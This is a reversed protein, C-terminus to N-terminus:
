PNTGLVKIEELEPFDNSIEVDELHSIRDFCVEHINNYRGTAATMGWYVQDTGGFIGNLLDYQTSIVEQRDIEVSLKQSEPRWIVVFSHQRCDEINPIRNPGAMDNYHGVRGNAMIAIHDAEPDNLHYNLWTDIEIGVSPRLGSFGIGEGVYGTINPKPLFVFVMGDAGLEDQCGVMISLEVAFPQLLSIPQKYWISGSRYDEAETLRFCDGETLYTDGSLTFDELLPRQGFSILQISLFLSFLISKLAM